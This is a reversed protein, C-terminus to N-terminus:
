GSELFKFYSGIVEKRWIMAVVVRIEALRASFKESDNVRKMEHM